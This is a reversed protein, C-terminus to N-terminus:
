LGAAIKWSDGQRVLELRDVELGADWESQDGMEIQYAYNYEYTLRARNDEVELEKVTVNYQINKAHQAVMEYTQPLEDHGYDDRTTDTSGANDYYDESVLRRITGVDKQILAERYKALVDLIKRNETTDPIRADEDIRFGREDAYLEESQIYQSVCGSAVLLHAALLLLTALTLRIRPHM